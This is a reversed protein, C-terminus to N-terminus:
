RLSGRAARATAMLGTLQERGGGHGRLRSGHPLVDVVATMGTVDLVATMGTVDLMERILPGAGEVKV